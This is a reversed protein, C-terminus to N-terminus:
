SLSDEFQSVVRFPRYNVVTETEHYFLLALDVSARAACRPEVFLGRAPFLM